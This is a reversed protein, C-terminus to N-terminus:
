IHKRKCCPNYKSQKPEIPGNLKPRAHLAFLTIPRALNTTPMTGNRPAMTRHWQQTGHHPAMQARWPTQSNFIDMNCAISRLFLLMQLMKTPFGTPVTSIVPKALSSACTDQSFQLHGHQFNSNSPCEVCRVCSVSYKSGTSQLM